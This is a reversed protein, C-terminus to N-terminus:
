STPTVLAVTKFVPAVFSVAAASVANDCVSDLVVTLNSISLIKKNGTVGAITIIAGAYLNTVDTVTITKSAATTTANVSSLTGFTGQTSCFYQVGTSVSMLISGVYHTGANPAGVLTKNVGKYAGTSSSIAINQDAQNAEIFSNPNVLGTYIAQQAAITDSVQQGYVQNGTMTLLLTLKSPGVFIGRQMSGITPSLSYGKIINGTIKYNEERSTATYSGYGLNISIASGSANNFYNDTCEFQYDCQHIRIYPRDGPATLPANRFTNHDIFINSFRKYTDQTVAAVGSTCGDFLNDSIYIQDIGATANTVGNDPWFRMLIGGAVVNSDAGLISYFSNRTIKVNKIYSGTPANNDNTLYVGGEHGTRFENKDIIAGNVFGYLKITGFVRTLKNLTFNINVCPYNIDFSGSSIGDDGVNEVENGTAWVDNCKYFHFGDTGTVPNLLTGFHNGTYNGTFTVNNCFTAQIGYGIANKERVGSVVLPEMNCFELSKPGMTGPYNKYNPRLITVDKFIGTSKTTFTEAGFILGTLFHDLIFFTQGSGAGIFNVAGDVLSISNSLRYKKGVVERIALRSNFVRAIAASDDTGTITAPTIVVENSDLVAETFTADGVAGGDSFSVGKSTDRAWGFNANVRFFSVGDDTRTTDAMGTLIGRGVGNASAYGALFINQGATGVLTRLVTVNPCTGIKTLGTQVSLSAAPNLALAYTAYLVPNGQDDLVIHAGMSANFYRNVYNKSTDTYLYFSTNVETNAIGEALTEFADEFNLSKRLQEISVKVTDDGAIDSFFPVVGEDSIRATEPLQSIKVPSNAM